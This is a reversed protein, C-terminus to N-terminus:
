QESQYHRDIADATLAVNYVRLGDIVGKFYYNDPKRRGLNVTYDTPMLSTSYAGPTGSLVGNIYWQAQGFIKDWTVAIHTWSGPSISDASFARAVGNLVLVLKKDTAVYVAYQADGLSSSNKSIIYGSLSAAPDVNVWAEITIADTINLSADNGCDVYDDLGDFSLGGGVKGGVWCTSPDMNVLIGSNDNSSSDEATTAGEDEDFKWKGVTEGELYREEVEEASLAVNHVRVDDIIGKFYFNDPKRRGLNVTYDTPTLSTSYAGPTGSLEGNIYWQAQGSIKDWTVAIHNWVDPLISDVSSARIAGNLVLVLKKDSGVYVAYQADGLSLNNKSIIYGSLSITSDINVWAEITLADTINLSTDNGCYVYDDEGDFSLGEGVKGAVWCTGADMNVLTGFNGNGSSDAATAGAEGDFKWKGMTEGGLYHEKISDSNLAVNYVRVDDIIGKFYCNDPKRRGLNVTYDTPTLSTSYLGPTGSLEGNIYWKASIKDWTVVIHNWIGPLISDASSARIAGNLVLVLKMNTDVYIAYQRDGASNNNKSIIYGPLSASTDINVWAEITLADTINLSADNGYDVYNDLGNFFLGGGVKGAVWCTGTDMNVLTGSNGNGSSDAATAGAEEDFKWKGVTEGALYHEKISDSNLAVNYVRVDDIIGKFYYNDPKRRGLNVTYDTPTLSTSYLGPTGSLEGNIYWQAQGSIKDWTVAIHSWVGPSISDESSARIAGNLVLVLRKDAAVYIAYQRDEASSNKSIIYGPLSAAPDINVWAEITIADTINLSADNGCDVYNDQGNFFLGGGVKGAVWCTSPDMSTSLTGSNDNGSSDEAATAGAEEDLKWKGAANVILTVAYADYKNEWPFTVDVAGDYVNFQRSFIIQPGDVVGGDAEPILEVMAYVSHGQPVDLGEFHIDVDGPSGTFCGSSGLLVRVVNNEKGAVLEIRETPETEVLDGTIAAYRQYVWWQGKPENDITLIGDLHGRNAINWNAHCAADVEAREITAIRWATGGSYQEIESCYENIIIGVNNIDLNDMLDRCNQVQQVLDLTRDLFHWSIYNPVVNSSKCYGLFDDFDDDGPYTHGWSPGVIVAQPDVQRIKLYARRWLENFQGTQWSDQDPENWIDWQPHLGLAFWDEVLDEVFDEWPSWNGNAGPLGLGLSRWGDSIVVQQTIGLTAMRERQDWAASPYTRNLQINLPVVMSDPPSVPDANFGHIFGSARYTVPKTQDVLVYVTSIETALASGCMAVLFFCGIFYNYFRIKKM